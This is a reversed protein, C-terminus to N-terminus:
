FLLHQQSCYSTLFSFNANSFIQNTINRLSHSSLRSSSLSIRVSRPRTLGVTYTKAVKINTELGTATGPTKDRFSVRDTLPLCRTSKKHIHKLLKTDVNSRLVLNKNYECLNPLIEQLTKM